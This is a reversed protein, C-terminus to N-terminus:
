LQSRSAPGAAELPLATSIAMKVLKPETKISAFM